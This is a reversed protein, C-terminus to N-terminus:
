DGVKVFRAGALLAAAQRPLLRLDYGLRVLERLAYRPSFARLHLRTAEIDSSGNKPAGLFQEQRAIAPLLQWPSLQAFLPSNNPNFLLHDVPLDFQAQALLLL